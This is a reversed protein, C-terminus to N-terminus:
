IQPHEGRGRPHVPPMGRRTSSAITNGAGAPIFRGHRRRQVQHLRTGRARPSSGRSKDGQFATPVHEGRGRPHVSGLRRRGATNRTNGAGAPIFRAAHQSDVATRLTGRARPSSGDNPRSTSRRCSHEGRGRPHVAEVDDAALRDRTNGAGAPIFRRGVQHKNGNLRTGRARPSSGHGEAFGAGALQHEGRGRPHVTSTM